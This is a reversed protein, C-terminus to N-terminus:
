FKKGLNVKIVNRTNMEAAIETSSILFSGPGQKCQQRKYFCFVVLGIELAYDLTIEPFANQFDLLLKKSVKVTMSSLNEINGLVEEADEFDEEIEERAAQISCKYSEGGKRKSIFYLYCDSTIFPVQLFLRLSADLLDDATNEPFFEKMENLLWTLPNIEKEVLEDSFIIKKFFSRFSHTM